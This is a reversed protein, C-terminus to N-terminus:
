DNQTEGDRRPWRVGPRIGSSNTVGAYYNLHEGQHGAPLTCRLESDTHRIHCVAPIHAREGATQRRTM